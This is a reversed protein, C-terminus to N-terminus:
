AASITFLLVITMFARVESTLSVQLTEKQPVQQHESEEQTEQQASCTSLQLCRVVAAVLQIFGGILAQRSEGVAATHGEPPATAKPHPEPDGGAPITKRETETHLNKLNSM